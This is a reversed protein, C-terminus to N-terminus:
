LPRGGGHRRGRRRRAPGPTLDEHPAGEAVVLARGDVLAEVVKARGTKLLRQVTGRSVEMREGAAEQDLGERDCLRMAELESLELSITQLRTMPIARPKFVRDGDHARCRRHKHPRPM